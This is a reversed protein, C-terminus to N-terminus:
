ALEYKDRWASTVYNIIIHKRIAGNLPRKGV